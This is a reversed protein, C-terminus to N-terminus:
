IIQTWEFFAPPGDLKDDISVRFVEDHETALHKDVAEQNEWGLLMYLENPNANSQFVHTMVHGEDKKNAEAQIKMARIVDDACADQVTFKLLDIIM